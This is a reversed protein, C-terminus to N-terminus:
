AGRGNGGATAAPTAPGTPPPLSLLGDIAAMAAGVVGADAGLNSREVRLSTTARPHIRKGLEREVAGVYRSSEALVGDLVVGAPCVLSVASALVAALRVGAREVVEAALPDGLDALALLTAIDPQERPWRVAAERELAASSAVAELCGARGCPCPDTSGDPSVHGIEGALRNPGLYPKGDIVLSAGIGSDALVFVFDGGTGARRRAEAVARMRVADDIVLLGAGLRDRLADRLGFGRWWGGWGPHESWDIVAGLVPDVVAYLGVGYGVVDSLHLGADQLLRAVFGAFLEVAAQHDAVPPVRDRSKARIDGRLNIVVGDLRGAGVEVGVVWHGNGALRLLDSPRGTPPRRRDDAEVLGAEILDSVLRSVQSVSLGTRRRLEGRTIPAEARVLRLLDLQRQNAVLSV